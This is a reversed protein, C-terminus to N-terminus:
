EPREGSRFGLAFEIWIGVKFAHRVEELARESSNPHRGFSALAPPRKPIDCGERTSRVPFRRSQEIREIDTDVGCNWLVKMATQAKLTLPCDSASKNKPEVMM